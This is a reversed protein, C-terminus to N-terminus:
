SWGPPNPEKPPLRPRKRHGTRRRANPGFYQEAEHINHARCRLQLNDPESSGGAAFPVVHHVQLFGTERCRGKPGVFACRAGDRAWVERKVAAPVHRTRARGPRRGHPRTAARRRPRSTAGRRTRELQAILAKLARDVIIAPDGDPVAHRLLDRAYQLRAHTERSVTVRILYRESSVPVAFARRMAVSRNSSHRGAPPAAPAGNAAAADASPEGPTTGRGPIAGTAAATRGSATSNARGHAPEASPVATTEGLATPDSELFPSTVLMRVDRTPLKRVSSPIDPQPVLGAILLEVDRKSKGRAADLLTDHNEETLHGALLTITTLTVDGAALRALVDPFRRSLRAATIRTYAAPESLRLVHTCYAFLSACGEGLYLRRADLEALLSLLHTTAHREDGVARATEVLLDRDALSSPQARLDMEQLYCADDRAAPQLHLIL